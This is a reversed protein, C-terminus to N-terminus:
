PQCSVLIISDSLIWHDLKVAFANTEASSKASEIFNSIKRICEEIPFKKIFSSYGIIDFFGLLTDQNYVLVNNKKLFYTAVEKPNGSFKYLSDDLEEQSAQLIKERGKINIDLREASSVIHVNDIQNFARFIEGWFEIPYSYEKNV